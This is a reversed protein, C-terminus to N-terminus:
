VAGTTHHDIMSHAGLLWIKGKYTWMKSLPNATMMLIGVGIVRFALRDWWTPPASFSWHDEPISM